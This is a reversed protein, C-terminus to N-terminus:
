GDAGMVPHIPQARVVAGDVASVGGCGRGRRRQLRWDGCCRGAAGMVRHVPKARVVARDLATDPSVDLDPLFGNDVAGTVKDFAFLGRHTLVPKGAGVEQVQTFTGGVFIRDGM